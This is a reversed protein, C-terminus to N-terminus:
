KQDHHPFPLTLQIPGSEKENTLKSVTIGLLRVKQIGVDTAQLLRPIHCLMEKKTYLPTKLTTSRTVTTFDSYRIKLTLTSGGCERRKLSNEVRGALNDLITKIENLDSIDNPFTTETGISKRKRSIRVERNDIGRVINFFYSGAKGFHHILLSKKYKLLDGGSKIGLGWM